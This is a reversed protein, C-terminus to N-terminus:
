AVRMSSCAEERSVGQALRSKPLSALLDFNSIMLHRARRDGRNQFNVRYTKAFDVMSIGRVDYLGRIFPTEGIVMLWKAPTARLWHALRVQDHRTFPRGEYDSFTSDYPPDLFIFDDCDLNERNLFAEFDGCSFRTKLLKSRVRSSFLEDLRAAPNRGNYSQGGYPVNFEGARNFRTMGTYCYGRLLWYFAAREGSVPLVHRRDNWGERMALYLAAKLATEVLVVPFDPSVGREKHKEYQRAKEDLSKEFLGKISPSLSAWVKDAAVSAVFDRRRSSSLISQADPASIRAMEEASTWARGFREVIETFRSDRRKIARYFGILDNSADNVIHRRADMSLWVAGGGVFPEIYRGSFDPIAPRIVGLEGTKGGTWKILPRLPPLSAAGVGVM